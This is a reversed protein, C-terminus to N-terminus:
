WRVAYGFNIRLASTLAVLAADSRAQAASHTLYSYSLSTTLISVKGVAFSLGVRPAVILGTGLTHQYAAGAAMGLVGFTTPNLPLHYSPEILASWLTASQGAAQTTTASAVAALELNDAVFRGASPAVTIDRVGHAVLLGISVGLDLRSAETRESPPDYPNPAPRPAPGPAPTAPTAPAPTAPAPVPPPAPAPTAPAPAPVPPTTPSPAAATGVAAAADAIAPRAALAPAACALLIWTARRGSTM